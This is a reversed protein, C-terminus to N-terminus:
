NNVTSDIERFKGLNAKVAIGCRPFASRCLVMVMRLEGDTKYEMLRNAFSDLRSIAGSRISCDLQIILFRSRFHRSASCVDSQINETPM